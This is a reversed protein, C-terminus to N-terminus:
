SFKKKRTKDLYKSRQVKRKWIYCKQPSDSDTVSHLWESSFLLWTNTVATVNGCIGM